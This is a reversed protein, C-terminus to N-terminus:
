AQAYVVHSHRARHLLRRLTFSCVSKFYQVSNAAISIYIVRELLCNTTQINQYPTVTRRVSSLRVMNGVRSGVPVAPCAGCTPLLAVRKEFFPHALSYVFSGNCIYTLCRLHLHIYLYIFFLTTSSGPRSGQKGARGTHSAETSPNSVRQHVCPRDQEKTNRAKSYSFTCCICFFPREEENSPLLPFPLSCKRQRRSSSCSACLGICHQRRRLPLRHVHNHGPPLPLSPFPLPLPFIVSPQWQRFLFLLSASSVEDLIQVKGGFFVLVVLLM